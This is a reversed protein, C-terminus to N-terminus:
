LHRSDHAPWMQAAWRTTGYMTFPEIPDKIDDAEGGFLSALDAISVGPARASYADAISSSSPRSCSTELEPTSAQSPSKM